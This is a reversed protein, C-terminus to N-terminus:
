INVEPKTAISVRITQETENRVSFTFNMGIYGSKSVLVNGTFGVPLMFNGFGNIDTQNELTGSFNGTLTLNAHSVPDMPSVLATADNVYITLTQNGTPLTQNDQPITVLALCISFISIFGLTYM